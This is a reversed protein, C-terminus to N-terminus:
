EEGLLMEAELLYRASDRNYVEEANAKKWYCSVADGIYNITDSGLSTLDIKLGSLPQFIQKFILGCSTKLKSVAGEYNKNTEDVEAKLKLIEDIKEIVDKCKTIWNYYDDCHEKLDVLKSELTVKFNGSWSSYEDIETVNLDQTLDYQNIANKLTDVISEM